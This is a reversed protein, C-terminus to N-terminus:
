FSLKNLEKLFNFEEQSYEITGGQQFIQKPKEDYALNIAEAKTKGESIYQKVKEQITM